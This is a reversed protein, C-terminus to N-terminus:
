DQWCPKYTRFPLKKLGEASHFRRVMVLHSIADSKVTMQMPM